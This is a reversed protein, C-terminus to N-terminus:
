QAKCEHNTSLVKLCLDSQNFHGVEVTLCQCLRRGSLTLRQLQHASLIRSRHVTICFQRERREFQTVDDSMWCKPPIVSIELHRLTNRLYIVFLPRQVVYKSIAVEGHSGIASHRFFLFQGPPLRLLLNRTSASVWM